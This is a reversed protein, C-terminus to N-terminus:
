DFDTRDNQLVTFKVNASTLLASITDTLKTMDTTKSYSKLYFEKRDMPFIMRIKGKRNYGEPKRNRQLDVMNLEIFMQLIEEEEPVQGIEKLFAMLISPFVPAIDKYDSKGKLVFHVSFVKM